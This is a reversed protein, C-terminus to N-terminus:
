TNYAIKLFDPQNHIYDTRHSSHTTYELYDYQIMLLTLLQTAAVNKTINRNARANKGRTTVNKENIKCAHLQFETLNKLVIQKTKTSNKTCQGKCKYRM